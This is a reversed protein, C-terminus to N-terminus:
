CKPVTKQGNILKSDTILNDTDLFHAQFEGEGCWDFVGEGCWDFVGEWVM